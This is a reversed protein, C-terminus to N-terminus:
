KLCRLKGQEVHFMTAASWRALVSDPVATGTLFVQACTATIAIIAQEFHAADLESMLDDLCLVPWAGTRQALQEAQGLMCCLATLKEQGRSLAERNPLGAFNIRWDARHPGVSTYGTALDRDRAILLADSLNFADRKWGALYTLSPQGLEPLLLGAYRAINTEVTHLYELRWRTMAEGHNALEDDWPQLQSVSPGAKLLANRQKLVRTYRRWASLFQHEVHFLAWDLYRRREESPGAILQHSGPEFTVITQTACFDTLAQISQGDFRAEWRDGFHRLGARHSRGTADDFECYIQLAAAGTRILGDRVRGRFSRGYALLHLAELISTKGAGNAGTIVTLGTAPTLECAQLCRLQEIQLQRVIM